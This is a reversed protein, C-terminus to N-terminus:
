GIRARMKDIAENWASSAHPFFKRVGYIGAAAIVGFVLWPTANSPDIDFGYLTLEFNAGLRSTQFYLIEILGIFGVLAVVLSGVFLAYPMLLPVLLKPDVRWIPQHMLILGALGGPFFMIVAVFLIGLYLVWAETVTTLTGQLFTILIAGIIPGGFHGIGGIYAMFLVGGSQIASVSEFGIHEFNIAHLSGALGAFFSSLAFALWRIRQSSYGVFETREPNDRVANSMRGFPTKTLAYMAATAVLVWVAILYYVEINPGYSIGMTEPGIMRDTQIGDEGNFVAVLILTLATVMEGFGLSIMAFTTGARRTSVYGVLTGFLLGVVGGLLPFFSLPIYPAIEDYVFNLYHITFYGALGFYIAHGFSLMGGQGLLMNYALSFIILVGMQSLLNLAFGSTFIHPVVLLLLAAFVWVGYNKLISM